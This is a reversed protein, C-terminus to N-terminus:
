FRQEFRAGVVRLVPLQANVAAGFAPDELDYNSEIATFAKDNFLNTVFFELRQHPRVLGVRLNVVNYDQTRTLNVVSDWQGSKYVYDLRGFYTLDGVVRGTYEVGLTASYPSYQPLEKNVVTPNGTLAEAVASQFRKIDSENYSAAFNITLPPIPHLAGEVEVGYLDTVGINTYFGAETLSCTPQGCNLPIKLNQYVIQNSWKAYYTAGNIQLRHDFFEGKFGVEYNDLKEPQVAFGVGPNNAEIYALQSPTYSNIFSANFTGPNVGQSYSAYIQTLSSPRYQLIVRPVFNRFTGSSVSSSPGDHDARAYQVVRDVQYRGDFDLTLQKLIDYSLSFFAGSTYVEQPNGNVFDGPGYPSLASNGYETYNYVYSAGVMGRFRGFNGNMRFEQSYDDNISQTNFLWNYTPPANAIVGYYPNPDNNSNQNDYDHILSYRDDNFSSLSTLVIQPSLQYEITLGSHILQHKLGAHNLGLNDSFVPNVIGGAGSLVTSTFLPTLTDNQALRNLGYSSLSPLTGCVYNLGKYTAPGGPDCNYDQRVFPAVASPGDDELSYAGFFKITLKDTPTARITATISKTSQDGLREDLNAANAYQGDTSYYRASIRASLLNPILPGEIYVRDDTGNYSAASVDFGAHFDESPNKTTISLAGAFVSRGFAASQPGKLVEVQAADEIGDVLGASVPAGDIFVTATASSGPTMGRISYIAIARDGRSGDSHTVNFGPTYQSIDDLNTINKQLITQATFATDAIPTELLSEKTRRAQVIIEGLNTPSDTSVLTSPKEQAYTANVLCLTGIVTSAGALLISRLKM